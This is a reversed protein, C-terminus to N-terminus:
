ENIEVLDEEPFPYDYDGLIGIDPHDWSVLYHGPSVVETVTGRDNLDSVIAVRDGPSLAM